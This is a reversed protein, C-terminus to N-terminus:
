SVWRGSADFTYQKGNITYTGNGLPYNNKSYYWYGDVRTWANNNLKTLSYGDNGVIYYGEGNVYVPMNKCALGSINFFYKTGNVTQLKSYAKGDAGYYRRYGNGHDFWENKYLQGGTKARYYIYNGSTGDYLGYQEDNALMQGNSRFVYQTGNIEKLTNKVPVGNECYYWSNDVRTWGNEKLSYLKSGDSGVVYYKDNEKVTSYSAMRGGNEFYYTKGNIIKKGESSVGDAGFYYWGNSYKVWENQYLEGNQKAGILGWRANGLNFGSTNNSLMHGDDDFYYMKGNIPKKTSIAPVGNESYFWYDEVKTWGNKNITILETGTNDTVYYGDDVKVAANIALKGYDSFYYTKGQITSKGYASKGNSDYYWSRGNGDIYWEDRWLEGNEKARYCVPSVSDGNMATYYNNNSGSVLMQGQNTFLYLKNGIMRLDSTVPIGNESYFWYGNVETWGEKNLDILSTGDNNGVYYKGDMKVVINQALIGYDGFYLTKGEVVQKGTRGVSDSGYYYRYNGIEAWENQYLVGGPKARYSIREGNVMTSWMMDDIMRGRYDFYYNKNGITKMNTQAAVGNEAYFWYNDIKKWGNGSMKNLTQGDGSVVYTIGDLELVEDACMRGNYTFYYKKGNM